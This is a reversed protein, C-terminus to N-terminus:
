IRLSAAISIQMATKTPDGTDAPRRRSITPHKSKRFFIKIKVPHILYDIAQKDQAAHRRGYKKPLVFGDVEVDM